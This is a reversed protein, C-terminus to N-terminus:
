PASPASYNGSDSVITKKWDYNEFIWDILKETEGFRDQSGLLAIMVERDGRKIYTVLNERAFETWGTKVGLVGDVKGVLENINSLRHIITGDVSSVTKKQTAVIKAFEPNEMAARSVTILDRATTTHSEGDLGSPNTFVTNVLGLEQAKINMAEIFFERGGVFNQALVEAADNASYMLLGYLLDEVRIKEGKALRMKQGEISVDGVTLVEDLPYYDLVVLATVIKTTSAPLSPQDPSKEFLTTNSALDIALVSQASFDPRPLNVRSVPIIKTVFSPLEKFGPNSPTKANALFSAIDIRTFTVALTGM